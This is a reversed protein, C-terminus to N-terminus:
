APSRTRGLIVFRHWRSEVLLTALKFDLEVPEFFLQITWTLLSPLPNVRVVLLAAHPPLTLQEAHVAGSQVVLWHVLMSVIQVQHAPEILRLRATGKVPHSAHGCPQTLLAIRDIFLSHAAQPSLQPQHGHIGLWV